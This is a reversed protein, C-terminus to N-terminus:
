IEKRLIKQKSNNKIENSCEKAMKTMTKIDYKNNQTYIMSPLVEYYSPVEYDKVKAMCITKLEEKFKDLDVNTDDKLTVYVFIDEGLSEDEIGLALAEKVNPHTLLALEITEPSIKFAKKVIQRVLRGHLHVFGEKDIFGTDNTHLWVSGDPHVRKAKKTEEEKNAYYSFILDGGFCIEGIEGYECERQNENDYAIVDTGYIPVGVTGPKNYMLPNVTAAGLWENTGYGNYIQSGLSKQLDILENLVIKDGGTCLFVKGLEKQLLEIESKSLESLKERIYRYHLPAAFSIDFKGINEYVTKGDIEPCLQATMGHMLSTIYSNILGYAVFPPVTVLLRNKEYLPLLTQSLGKISNLVSFDTHIISKALGTTGSSQVILTPKEKDFGVPEIGQKQLKGNKLFKNFTTFRIDDPLVIKPTDKKEKAMQMLKDFDSKSKLLVKFPRISDSPSISIVKEIDTDNIVENTMALFDELVIFIKSNDECLYKKLSEPSMRLDIWKSVAGIKNLALYIYAVEPTNIMGIPVVDGNKVGANVLAKSLIDVKEMVENYTIDNGLYGIATYDMNDKNLTEFAEYVTQNVNIDRLSEDRQLKKWPKDQSPYGTIIGKEQEKNM